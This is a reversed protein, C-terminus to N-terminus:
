KGTAALPAVDLPVEAVFRRAFDRVDDWDTYEYDRSSDVDGGHKGVIRKMIWRTLWGYQTYKLAGAVVKVETPRWGTTESFRDILVRLDHDVRATRNVAALCVVVLAAPRRNLTNRYKRAWWQLTRQLRGAHVSGVAIVTSYDAPNGAEAAAINGISVSAGAEELADAITAAVKAAQGHTTAYMVLVRPTM